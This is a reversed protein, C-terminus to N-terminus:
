LTGFDLTLNTTTIVSPAITQGAINSVASTIYGAGNTLQNNNTPITPKNSLNNYNSYYSGHEGDLTDANSTTTAVSVSNVIFECETSEISVNGDENYAYNGISVTDNASLYLMTEIKNNSFKGYSAGRDYDYTRTSLIETGNKEVYARITNRQSGTANDYVMNAYIRYWGAALVTIVGSSHSFASTDNSEEVNFNVTFENGSGQAIAADVNTKLHCVHTDYNATTLYSSGQVGDLTDADLGSGPGDVTKISTLIESASQDATAGSEIGDLKSGDASVDRGDVTQNGTFTINGSFQNAGTGAFNGGATVGGQWSSGNYIKLEDSTTDFYLDGEALSNGGGDTTPASSSIQYTSAFNNVNSINSATTNINTANSVVANINTANGVAANINSANSVASNINSSNNAVATINSNNGAVADINTKNANVANINTANNKVANINTANGAVATINSNNGAVATVNSNNGAVTTVNASIGAVTNVNAINNGVNDVNTIANAVTDIESTTENLDNAATVVKAIDAAVTQLNNNSIQGAVTNINTANGAVANINTANNKVATINTNNGAVATVNSNNNAVTTVNGSIGAVTSVNSSVGAVTSINSSIDALTDMDSVIATTALTNMDSVADATGLRGIETNKGAVTNVNTINNAVTQINSAGSATSLTDAISGLDTGHAVQGAVVNIDNLQSANLAANAGIEKITGGDNVFLKKASTDLAVEGNVINSTTPTSTGRKLKIVTSM